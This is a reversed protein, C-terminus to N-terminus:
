SLLKAIIVAGVGFSVSVSVIFMFISVPLKIAWFIFDFEM